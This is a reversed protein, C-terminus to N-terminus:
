QLFSNFMKYFTVSYCQLAVSYYNSFIFIDSHWKTSSHSDSIYILFLCHDFVKQLCSTCTKANIINFLNLLHLAHVGLDRQEHFTNLSRRISTSMLMWANTLILQERSKINQILSLIQLIFNNCLVVSSRKNALQSITTSCITM